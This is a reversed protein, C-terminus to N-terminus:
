GFSCALVYSVLNKNLWLLLIFPSLLIARMGNVWSFSHLLQISNEYM